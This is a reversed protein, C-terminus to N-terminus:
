FILPPQLSVTPTTIYNANKTENDVSLVFIPRAEFVRSNEEIERPNWLCIRIHHSHFWKPLIGNRVCFSNEFNRWLQCYTYMCLFYMFHFM